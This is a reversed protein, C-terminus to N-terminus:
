QVEFFQRPRQGNYVSLPAVVAANALVIRSFQDVRTTVTGQVKGMAGAGSDAWGSPFSGGAAQGAAVRRGDVWLRALGSTPQVAFVINFRQGSQVQPGVLTVGDDAAADGAAACLVRDAQRLWVALGTTSSGFEFIIGRASGTIRVRTRFAIERARDPFLTGTDINDQAPSFSHTRFLGRAPDLRALRAQRAHWLAVPNGM